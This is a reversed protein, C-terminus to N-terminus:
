LAFTHRFNMKVHLGPVSWVHFHDQPWSLFFSSVAGKKELVVPRQAHSALEM